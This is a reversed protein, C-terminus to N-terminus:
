LVLAMGQCGCLFHRHYRDGDWVLHEPDAAGHTRILAAKDLIGVFGRTPLLVDLGARTHQTRGTTMIGFLWLALLDSACDPLVMCSVLTATGARSRAFLRRAPHDSRGYSAVLGM